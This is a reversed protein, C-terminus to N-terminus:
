HPVKQHKQFNPPKPLPIESRVTQGKTSKPIFQQLYPHQLLKKATPREQPDWRFIAHLFESAGTYAHEHPLGWEKGSRTKSRLVPKQSFDLKDGSTSRWHELLKQTPKGIAKAFYPIFDNPHKGSEQSIYSCGRCMELMVLGASWIDTSLTYFSDYMHIEPANYIYTGVIMTKSANPQFDLISRNFDALQLRGNAYLLINGPKVDGHLINKRHLIDLAGLLQRMYSKVLNKPLPAYKLEKCIYEDLTKPALEMFLDAHNKYISVHYLEPFVDYNITKKMVQIENKLRAKKAEDCNWYVVKMAVKKVGTIGRKKAFLLEKPNASFVYVRADAGRSLFKEHRYTHHGLFKPRSIKRLFLPQTAHRRQHRQRTVKSM